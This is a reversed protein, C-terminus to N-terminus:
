SPFRVLVRNGSKKGKSVQQAKLYAQWERRYITRWRLLADIDMRKIRIGEVEYEAQDKTAKGELLAEIADLVKKCHPRLDAVADIEAPDPLIDISGSEVTIRQDDKKAFLTVTYFGAPWQATVAAALAVLHDDGDAAADFDIKAPGRLAYALVWGASAPYDAFSKRWTRSDGAIISTPTDNEM